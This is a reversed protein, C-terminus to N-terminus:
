GKIYEECVKDIEEALIDVEEFNKPRVGSAFKHGGGNHLAAVENIIPGRSRISGRINNNMLDESFVAWAYIGEIYNFNNVMNGATAADVEYEKLIKETLKIYAFGHETVTLHNDIYGEFKAEKFPRLYLNTYLSSFDINTEKILRAVLEFTKPTTYSFLFRDTDAVLGIFLKEAAEKSWKLKTNFVLEMILQSASSASEDVFEIGGFDEIFPHHDIKICEKFRKVDVGDVRKIDPTDTVILLSNVYMSEQFKDLTGLYKFKSAPSGVVYVEKNPFNSLIIEKLGVSSGLADPDPGIHRAIVIKDYKKIKNYIKKYIDKKM